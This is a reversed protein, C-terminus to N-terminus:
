SEVSIRRSTSDWVISLVHGHSCILHNAIARDQWHRGGGRRRFFFALPYLQRLAPATPSRPCQLIWRQASAKCECAFLHEMSSPSGGAVAIAALLQRILLPALDCGSCLTCCLIAGGIHQKWDAFRQHWESPMAGLVAGIWAGMAIPHLLVTGVFSVPVCCKFTACWSHSFNICAHNSHHGLGLCAHM